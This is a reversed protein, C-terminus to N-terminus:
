SGEIIVVDGDADLVVEEPESFQEDGRSHMFVKATDPQYELLNILELVTM